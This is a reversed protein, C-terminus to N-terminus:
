LSRMMTALAYINAPDSAATRPGRLLEKMALLDRYGALVGDIRDAPLEHGAARLLVLLEERVPDTAGSRSGSGKSATAENAM